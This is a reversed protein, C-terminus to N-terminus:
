PCVGCGIEAQSLETLEKMRSAPDCLLWSRAPGARGLKSRLEPSEILRRLAQALSDPDEPKTLFGCSEDIIEMAGGMATTVVPRGAWLAEIFVIGFPEPERNPQCFIDAAAMLKPVDSRQGLFRVRDAIGLQNATQQLQLLYQEEHPRQPGGAIWCVWKGAARLRALAHLHLVHGKWGEMRSVQLIVTTDDDVAQEQRIGARWRDAEPAEMLAVPCYIVRLPTNPFHNRVIAATFHSNAIAADPQMRRAIRELWNKRNQFGHEWLAVKLGSARAPALFLVLSWAMHCVVLDFREKKLLESLHRRARWVTWPRSIRARGLFYVPVGAAALERSSRGEYCTAFHPEMDPCLHRLKALTTLLTEVGGYLNGANLHLVRIRGARRVGEEDSTNRSVPRDNLAPVV